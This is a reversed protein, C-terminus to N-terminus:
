FHSEARRGCSRAPIVVSRQIENRCAVLHIQTSQEAKAVQLVTSNEREHSERFTSSFLTELPVFEENRDTASEDDFSSSIASKTCVFQISFEMSIRGAVDSLQQLRLDDM